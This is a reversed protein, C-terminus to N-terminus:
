EQETKRRLWGKPWHTVNEKLDSENFPWEPQEIIFDTHESVFEIVAATPHNLKWDPDGRPVDYLEKMIGDTAVIYSGPTVLDHYACLEDLVHQKSHNSDLIVLVTENKKILSKVKKIIEPDTSNGEILNIYSFLEHNEIEKRNHPRIEIDIGIIRGKSMAKCLSAYFIISGGHAIGTEIIVDPKIRFIVEQIRIMDEPLQIVPRGMWTYTYIYKQDWGVKLWCSSLTEFSKKSYLDYLNAGNKDEVILKEKSFDIVIKM